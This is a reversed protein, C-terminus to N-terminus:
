HKGDRHELYQSLSLSPPLFQDNKNEVHTQRKGRDDDFGPASLKVKM